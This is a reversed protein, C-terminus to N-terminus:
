KKLGRFFKFVENSTASNGHKDPHCLYIIKKMLEDNIEFGDQKSELYRIRQKLNEVENRKSKAFCSRCVTKFGEDDFSEGCKCRKIM